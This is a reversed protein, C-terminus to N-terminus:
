KKEELKYKKETKSIYDVILQEADKTTILRALKIYETLREEQVDLEVHMKVRCSDIYDRAHFNGLTIASFMLAFVAGLFWWGNEFIPSVESPETNFHVLAYVIFYCTSSAMLIMCIMWLLHRM